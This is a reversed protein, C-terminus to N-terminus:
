VGKSVILVGICIIMLGFIKYGNLNEGFFILSLIMVVVFNLSMFPYAYSLEFESIAAIWAISAFVASVFGSLVLPRSIIFKIYFYVLDIGSPVASLTNVQQKLILQGYVTFAITLFIYFYGMETDRSLVM